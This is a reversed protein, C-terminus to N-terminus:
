KLYIWVCVMVGIRMNAINPYMVNNNYPFLRARFLYIDWFLHLHFSKDQGTNM